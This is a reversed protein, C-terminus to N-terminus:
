TNIWKQTWKNDHKQYAPYGSSWRDGYEEEWKNCTEKRFQNNSVFKNGCSKKYGLSQFRCNKCTHNKLLNTTAIKKQLKIKHKLRRLARQEQKKKKPKANKLLKEGITKIKILEKKLIWRGDQASEV